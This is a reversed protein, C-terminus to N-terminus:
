PEVARIFEQLKVLTLTTEACQGALVGTSPLNDPTYGAAGGPAYSIQPLASGSKGYRLQYYARLNALQTNYADQTEKIRKTNIADTKATEKAQQAAAAMVESRYQDFIVQVRHHGRYYGYGFIVAILLLGGIIRTALDTFGFM